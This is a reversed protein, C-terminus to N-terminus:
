LFFISTINFSINPLSIVLINLTFNKYYQFSIKWFISCSISLQMSFSMVTINLLFYFLHYFFISALILHILLQIWQQISCLILIIWKFLLFLKSCYTSYRESFHLSLILYRILRKTWCFMIYKMSLFFILIWICNLALYKKLLMSVLGSRPWLNRYASINLSRYAEHPGTIM